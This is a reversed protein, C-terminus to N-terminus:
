RIARETESDFFHLNRTNVALTHTTNVAPASRASVRATIPQGDLNLYLYIESGMPEVVEIMAQMTGGPMSTQDPSEELDEPRIGLLIPKGSYTALADRYDPPIELRFLSGAAVFCLGTGAGEIRGRLINMPPSGIFTAVFKNVPHHYLDLPAAVQQIVGDLIVVIRDGM